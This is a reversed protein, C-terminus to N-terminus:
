AAPRTRARGRLRAVDTGDYAEWQLPPDDPDVGVGEITCDFQLRGRLRPVAETLGVLLADGPEPAAPSRPSRRERMRSSSPARSAVRADAGGRDPGLEALLRRDASGRRHTFM